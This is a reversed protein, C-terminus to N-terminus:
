GKKLTDVAETLRAVSATMEGIQATQRDLSKRLQDDVVQYERRTVFTEPLRHIRDYIEGHAKHDATLREDMQKMKEDRLRRVEAGLDKVALDRQNERRQIGFYFAVQFMMSVLSGIAAGLLMQVVTSM